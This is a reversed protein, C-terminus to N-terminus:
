STRDATRHDDFGSSEKVEDIRLLVGSEAWETSILYQIKVPTGPLQTTLTAPVRLLPKKTTATHKVSRRIQCGKCHVTNGCGGPLTAFVCEMVVGGLEQEIEEAPKGVAEAAASNATLIRGEEDVLMVPQEFQNLYERLKEPPTSLARGHCETCVGHSIPMTSTQDESVQITKGCWSCLTLM